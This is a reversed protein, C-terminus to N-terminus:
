PASREGLVVRDRGGPDRHSAIASYGIRGLLAEVKARQDWGIELALAGGPSLNPLAEAALRAILDLGEPGGDLALKPEFDRVDRMLKPIEASAVYPLNAAILDFPGRVAALLDSEVLEVREDLGHKARNKAAVALAKPSVDVATVKARPLEKALALAICGTGTGVDLIRPAEASKLREICLEILTETDPRPILVDPTVELSMSWIEKEGTLYAIPEGRARRAVLGRIKALEEAGLPQDFKAYLMVRQLGLAHALIVEADLRPPEIGKSEFHGRTWDLVSLITWTV